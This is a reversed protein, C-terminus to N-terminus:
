EPPQRRAIEDSVANCELDAARAVPCITDQWALLDEMTWTEFQNGGALMRTTHEHALAEGAARVASVTEKKMQGHKRSKDQTM